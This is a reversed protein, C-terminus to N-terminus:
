LKKKPLSKKHLILIVSLQKKYSTLNQKLVTVFDKFVYDLPIFQSLINSLSRGINVTFMEKTYPDFCPHASTQIVKFPTPPKGPMNGIKSVEKWEDNRGVPTVTELTKPDIEYPRGVDWTALLRESEDQSFKLHVFATNLQNRVGLQGSIRTIGYNKFKLDQYKECKDAAADAYYCPPKVLRSSLFAGAELNDFDLRYIMGDGNYLPTTGDSSPYVTSNTPYGQDDPSDISGVPAVIFVHGQLDLPLKGEKVNMKLPLDKADPNDEKNGFEDRSVSLVSRPFTSNLAEKTADQM